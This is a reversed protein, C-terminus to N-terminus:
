TSFTWRTFGLAVITVLLTSISIILGVTLGPPWYHMQIQHPGAPLYVGRLTYDARLVPVSQNDITAEWGPAFVESLVLIGPVDTSSRLEIQNPTYKQIEVHSEGGAGLAGAPQDLIVVRALDFDDRYLTALALTDDAIVQVDNVVFARPLANINRYVYATAPQLVPYDSAARDSALITVPEQGIQRWDPSDIPDLMLATTANLLRLARPNFRKFFRRDQTDDISEGLGYIILERYQKIVQPFDSQVNAFQFIGGMNSPLLNDESYVRGAEPPLDLYTLMSKQSKSLIDTTPIVVLYRWSFLVLDLAIVVGLSALALQPARRLLVLFTGAFFLIASPLTFQDPLGRAVQQVIKFAYDVTRTRTGPANAYAMRALTEGLTVIRQNELRTVLLITLSATGLGLLIWGLRGLWHSDNRTRELTNLGLGALISLTFCFLILIRAPIRFASLGPVWGYALLYVPTFRGMALVLGCAGVVLLAAVQPRRVDRLAFMALILPIVGMYMASEIQSIYGLFYGWYNQDIDTGFFDPLILNILHTPPLSSQVATAFELGGSRISTSVSAHTPLLYVAGIGVGLLIMLASRAINTLIWKALSFHPPREFVLLRLFLYVGLLLVTYLWIQTVACLMQVGLTVGGALAYRFRRECALKEMFYFIFPIWAAAYVYMFHGAFVRLITYGNFMFLLAGITASFPAAGLQKLFLYVGIGALVFHFIYALAFSFGIPAFLALLLHPPYFIPAWVFFPIGSSAYPDWLPLSGGRIQEALFVQTSYAMDMDNAFITQGPLLARAFYVFAASTIFTCPLFWDPLQELFNRALRTHSM